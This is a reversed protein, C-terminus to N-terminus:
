IFAVYAGKCQKLGELSSFKIAVSCVLKGSIGSSNGEM